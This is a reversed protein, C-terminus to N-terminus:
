LMYHKVTVASRWHSLAFVSVCCLALRDYETPLGRSMAVRRNDGRLHYVGDALERGFLYELRKMRGRDGAARAYYYAYADRAHEARIGHLDLDREIHPFLLEDPCVNEFYAKVLEIDGPAIRQLQDWTRLVGRGCIYPRHQAFLIGASCGAM